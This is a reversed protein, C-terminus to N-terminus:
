WLKWMFWRTIDDLTPTLQHFLIHGHV